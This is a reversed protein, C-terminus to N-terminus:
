ISRYPLNAFQKKPTKRFVWFFGNKWCIKPALPLKKSGFMGSKNNACSKCDFRFSEQLNSRLWFLEPFIRLTEATCHKFIGLVWKKFNKQGLVCNREKWLRRKGTAVGLAEFLAPWKHTPADDFVCLFVAFRKLASMLVWFLVMKQRKKTCFAINNWLIAKKKTTVGQAVLQVAKKHPQADDSVCLFMRLRRTCVKFVAFIGRKEMSYLQWKKTEVGQAELQATIKHTQINKNHCLLIGFSKLAYRFVVFCLKKRM